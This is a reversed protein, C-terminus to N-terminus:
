NIIENFEKVIYEIQSQNLDYYIPLCIIYDSLKDSVRLSKDYFNKYIKWRIQPIFVMEHTEINKKLLKKIIIDRKIKEIILIYQFHGICQIM